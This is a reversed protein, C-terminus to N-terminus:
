YRICESHQTIGCRLAATATAETKEIKLREDETANDEEKRLTEEAIRTITSSPM